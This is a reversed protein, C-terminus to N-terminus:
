FFNSHAASGAKGPRERGAGRPTSAAFPERLSVGGSRCGAQLGSAEPAGAVTPSGNWGPTRKEPTSSAIPREVAM